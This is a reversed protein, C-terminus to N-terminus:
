TNLKSYLLITRFEAHHQSHKVIIKNLCYYESAIKEFYETRHYPLLIAFLGTPSLLNKICNMLTLLNLNSSHLATNRNNHISKLDNEYFPPNTIIFDYLINRNYNQIASHHISIKSKFASNMINEKAQKYANEDIELADINLHCQQALMLSLLGTGAGIDLSNKISYNAMENACWAGFLCADTSVKMACDNQHITFQKFKFFSYAM